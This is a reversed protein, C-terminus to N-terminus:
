KSEGTGFSITAFKCFSEPEFTVESARDDITLFALSEITARVQEKGQGLLRAIEEVTPRHQAHAIVALTQLAAEDDRVPNWEKEFLDILKDKVLTRPDQGAHINRRVSALHGPIGRGCAQYLEDVLDRELGLDALYKMTEDLSFSVMPCSKCEVRKRVHHPLLNLDGSMLFRFGEGLPFMDLIINRTGEDPIDALGDLVFYYTERRARRRLELLRNRLYGEDSEEPQCLKDPHLVWLLQCCLDYRVSTPDYGLKSAPRLFVSFIHNPHRWSFQALLTTKGMGEDGEVAVLEIEGEFMREITDLINDRPILPERLRPFSQCVLTLNMVELNSRTAEGM